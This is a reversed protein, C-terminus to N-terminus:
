RGWISNVVYTIANRVQGTVLLAKEGKFGAKTLYKRAKLTAESPAKIGEQDNIVKKCSNSALTGAREYYTELASAGKSLAGIAAKKFEEAIAKQANRIGTTLVPRPPIHAAESGFHNIALIAANGIIEPNGKKETKTEREDDEQPIGVLVADKKFKAITDNFTKTFDSTVTLTTKM